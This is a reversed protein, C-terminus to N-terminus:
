DPMSWEGEGELILVKIMQKVEGDSEERENKELIIEMEGDGTPKIEGTVISNGDDDTINIQTM